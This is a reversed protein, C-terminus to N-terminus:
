ESVGRLLFRAHSEGKGGGGGLYGLGLTSLGRPNRHLSLLTKQWALLQRLEARWRQAEGKPRSQCMGFRPSWSLNTSVLQPGPVWVQGWPQSLPRQGGAILRRSM